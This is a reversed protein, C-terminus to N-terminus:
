PHTLNNQYTHQADCDTFRRNQDRIKSHMSHNLEITTSWETFRVDVPLEFDSNWLKFIQFSVFYILDFRLNELPSMWLISKADLWCRTRYTGNSTTLANSFSHLSAPPKCGSICPPKANMYGPVLHHPGPLNCLFKM